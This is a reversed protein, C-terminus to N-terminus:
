TAKYGTTGSQSIILYPLEYNVEQLLNLSENSVALEYSTTSNVGTGQFNHLLNSIHLKRWM